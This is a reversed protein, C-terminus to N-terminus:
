SGPRPPGGLNWYDCRYWRGLNYVRGPWPFLGRSEEGSPTVRYGRRVNQICRDFCLTCQSTGFTHDRPNLDAVRSNLCNVFHTWCIREEDNPQEPPAVDVVDIAVPYPVDYEGFNWALWWMAGILGFRLAGTSSLGITDRAAENVAPAAIAGVSALGPSSSPAPPKPKPEQKSGGLTLPPKNVPPVYAPAPASPPPPDKPPACKGIYNGHRDYNPDKYPFGWKDVRVPQQLGSPDLTSTPRNSEAAYLNPDGARFEIPDREIFRGQTPSYDRRRFYYLGIIGNYRGGQHLYLWAFLSVGRDAWNATLVTVQGYPDEVYREVVTGNADVLATINYNADQQAYLREELGDSSQGNADRDREVLADVYVPSWVYQAKATGSIREELVQWAASYYLDTTTGGATDQIRRHQGDYAYSKLLNGSADKVAVLRNWADYVFQRGTEDRTLNGNADYTPTTQGSISTIQNQQNHTRSEVTGDTTVSNWNGLADFDWGQQRSPSTVTDPVGDSNTDSLLGRAFSVLQNFNDYGNAPGNAHYLEGFAPNVRNDRYLRNGNCDYGYQFRDTHVGTSTVLWRQDVVRSFRDLGTYPDGADGNAEGAQNIYTLDVGPQPHGLEVV